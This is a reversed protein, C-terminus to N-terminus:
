DVHASRGRRGDGPQIRLTAGSAKIAVFATGAATAYLGVVISGLLSLAALLALSFFAFAEAAGVQYSTLLAWLQWAFGFLAGVMGMTFNILAQIAWNIVVSLLSDDRRMASISMFLADYMSARKAFVKGHEYSEWFSERADAVGYESFVGVSARAQSLARANHADAADLEQQALVMDRRAAECTEDCSFWGKVSRYDQTRLALEERAKYLRPFDTHQLAAEYNTKMAPTVAYGSAFQFLVLGVIYLATAVYHRRAFNIGAKVLFLSLDEGAENGRRGAPVVRAQM